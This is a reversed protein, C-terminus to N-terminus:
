KLSLIYAIVDSRQEPTLVFMPMGAHSDYADSDIGDCDHRAGSSDAPVDALACKALAATGPPDRSVRRM